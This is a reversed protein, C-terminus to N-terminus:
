CLCAGSPTRETNCDSCTDRILVVPQRRATKLAPAVEARQADYHAFCDDQRALKQEDTHERWYGSGLGTDSRVVLAWLPPLGRTLCIAVIPNLTQGGLTRPNGRGAFGCFETFTMTRGERACRILEPLVKEADQVRRPDAPNELDFERFHQGRRDPHTDLWEALDAPPNNYLDEAFKIVSDHMPSRMREVSPAVRLHTKHSAIAALDITAPLDSM